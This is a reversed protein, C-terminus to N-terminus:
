MHFWKQTTQLLSSKARRKYAQLAAAKPDHDMYGVMFPPVNPQSSKNSGKISQEQVDDRSSINM